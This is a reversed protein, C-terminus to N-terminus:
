RTLYDFSHSPMYRAFRQQLFALNKAHWERCQPVMASTAGRYHTFPLDVRHLNYGAERMRLSIYADEGYAGELEPPFLGPEVARVKETDMCLMAGELYEFRPGVEGCFDDRLQCCGGAPGTMACKPDVAFPAKLVDLWGRTVVTDDNLMVFYKGKAWTFARRNPMIFGMNESNHIAGVKGPYAFKMEEFFREVETSGGNDTLILEFDGGASLVSDICRKAMPLATYTLISISFEPTM